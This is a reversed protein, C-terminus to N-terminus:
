PQEMNWLFAALNAVDVMDAKEIHQTLLKKIYQKNGENDWGSYGERWYKRELKIKMEKSFMDVLHHLAKIEASLNHYCEDISRCGCPRTFQEVTIV